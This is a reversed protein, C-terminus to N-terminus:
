RCCSTVRRIPIESRELRRSLVTELPTGPVGGHGKAKRSWVRDVRPNLSMIAFSLLRPNSYFGTIAAIASESGSVTVTVDRAPAWAPAGDKHRSVGIAVSVHLFDLVANRTLHYAASENDNIVLNKGIAISLIYKARQYDDGVWPHRLGHPQDEIAKVAAPIMRTVRRGAPPQAHSPSAQGM